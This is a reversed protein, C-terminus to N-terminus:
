PAGAVLRDFAAGVLTSYVTYPEEVALRAYYARAARNHDYVPWILYGAGADEARRAVEGMLGDGIGRGRAEPAVYIDSLLLGREALETDHTPWYLAYGVIAGADRALITSFFPPAAFGDRQVRGLTGPHPAYGMDRQLRDMLAAVAEADAATADALALGSGPRRAALARFREDTAICWLYEPHEEGGLRAYFDRALRNEPLVKWFMMRAGYAASARAVAAMLRRGLGGGRATKEVYIDALFVSREMRDTDYDRHCIAYGVAAGAHEAIFAVFAPNAAFGNARYREPTLAPVRGEHRGLAVCLGVVAEGDAPGAERVITRSADMRERAGRSRRPIM